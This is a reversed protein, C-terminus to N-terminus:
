REFGDGCDTAATEGADDGPEGHKRQVVRLSNELALTRATRVIEGRERQEPTEDALAADGADIAAGDGDDSAREGRVGGLPEGKLEDGTGQM